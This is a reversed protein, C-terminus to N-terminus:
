SNNIRVFDRTRMSCVCVDPLASHIHIAFIILFMCNLFIYEVDYTGGSGHSRLFLFETGITTLLIGNTDKKDYRPIVNSDERYLRTTTAGVIYQVL